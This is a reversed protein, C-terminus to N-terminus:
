SELYYKMKLKHITQKFIDKYIFYFNRVAQILMPEEYYKCDYSNNLSEMIELYKEKKIESIKYTDQKVYTNEVFEVAM